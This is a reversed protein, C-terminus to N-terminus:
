GLYQVPQDISDLGPLSAERHIQIPHARDGRRSDQHEVRGLPMSSAVMPLQDDHPGVPANSRYDLEDAQTAQHRSRLWGTNRLSSPVPQPLKSARM